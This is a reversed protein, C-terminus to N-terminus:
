FMRLSFGLVVILVATYAAINNRNPVIKLGWFWDNIKNDTYNEWLRYISNVFASIVLAKIFVTATSAMVFICAAALVVQFIASNLTKDKVDERHMHVYSFANLFDKHKVYARFTTSFEKTPEIFYAYIIYDLDLIFTGLLSGLVIYTFFLPPQSAKLAILVVCVTISTLFPIKYVDLVKKLM